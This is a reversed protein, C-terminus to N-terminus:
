QASADPQSGLAGSAEKMKLVDRLIASLEGNASRDHMVGRIKLARIMSRELRFTISATDKM